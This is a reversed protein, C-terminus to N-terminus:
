GFGRLGPLHRPGRVSLGIELAHPIKRRCGGEFPGALEASLLDQGVILRLLEGLTLRVSGVVVLVLRGVDDTVVVLEPIVAVLLHDAGLSRRQDDVGRIASHRRQRGVRLLAVCREGRLPLPNSSVLRRRSSPDLFKARASKL